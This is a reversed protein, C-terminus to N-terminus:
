ARANISSGDSVLRAKTKNSPASLVIPYCLFNADVYRLPPLLKAFYDYSPGGPQRLAAEGWVDQNSRQAEALTPVNSRRACGALLLSALTVRLAAATIRSNCM